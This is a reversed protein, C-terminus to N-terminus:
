ACGFILMKGILTPKMELSFAYIPLSFVGAIPFSLNHIPHQQQFGLGQWTFCGGRRIVEGLEPSTPNSVLLSICWSFWLNTQSSFQGRKSSTIRCIKNFNRRKEIGLAGTGLMLKM